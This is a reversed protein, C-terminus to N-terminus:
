LATIMAELNKIDDQDIKNQEIESQKIKQFIENAQVLKTKNIESTTEQISYQIIKVLIDLITDDFTNKEILYILGEAIPRTDQLLSLVKLVYQKKDMYKWFYYINIM